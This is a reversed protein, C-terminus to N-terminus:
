RCEAPAYKAPMTGLVISGFSRSAATNSTLSACAWDIPGQTNSDPVAQQVNPTLVITNGDLTTPIGNNASAEFQIYISWPAATDIAIDQVYKSSKELAPRANFATAAGTLGATGDAEFGEALLIKAAQGAVMGESVKSRITYDQYAPVAIAALIGIIAVVIMLEVLTFGHQVKM